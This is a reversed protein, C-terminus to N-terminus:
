FDDNYFFDDIQELLDKAEQQALTNLLRVEPYTDVDADIVEQLTKEFCERDYKAKCFISAYLVKTTLFKDGSYKLAAEFDQQAKVLDGGANVPMISYFTGYLLHPAGFYFSSDLEYIKDILAKAKPLEMLADMSDSNAIIWNIWANSAWFVNKVDKKRLTKVWTQFEDISKYEVKRFKPYTRLLLMAWEKTKDAFIKKREPDNVFASSYAYFLQIGTTLFTKNKPNSKILGEVLLLYSAAGDKVLQIDKQGYLSDSLGQILKNCSPVTNLVIFLLLIYAINKKM